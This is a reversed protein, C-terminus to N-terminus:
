SKPNSCYLCKLGRTSKGCKTCHVAFYEYKKLKSLKLFIVFGALILGGIIFYHATYAQDAKFIIDTCDLGCENQSYMFLYKAGFALNPELTLVLIMALLLGYILM